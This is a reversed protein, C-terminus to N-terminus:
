KEWCETAPGTGSIGHLNAQTITFNMCKSDSAQGGQPTATLTYQSAPTIGAFDITVLYNGGPTNVGAGALQAALPCRNTGDDDYQHFRTFCGELTQAVQQLGIKADARNSRMVQQRYSPYAIAALIGVIAVTIMLEMLTVGTQTKRFM